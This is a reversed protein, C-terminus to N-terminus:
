RYMSEYEERSTKEAIEKLGGDHEDVTQVIMQLFSLFFETSVRAEQYPFGYDFFIHGEEPDMHFSGYLLDKNIDNLATLVSAYNSPSARLDLHARFHLVSDNVHIMVPIPLDDGQFPVMFIKENQDFKYKLNANQFSSEITNVVRDPTTLEIEKKNKSFLGMHIPHSDCDPYKVFAVSAAPPDVQGRVGRGDHVDSKMGNFDIWGYCGNLEGLM